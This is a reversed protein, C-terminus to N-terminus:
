RVCFSSLKRSFIWGLHIHSARAIERNEERTKEEKAQEKKGTFAHV